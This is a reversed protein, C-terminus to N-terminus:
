NKERKRIRYIAVISLLGAFAISGAPTLAPVPRARTLPHYDGGYLIYGQSNYPLLTDGLGDGDLDTGEYDSWFNGGLYPGGIINKGPTKTINWINTGDDEANFLNNFYNNYIINNSSAFVYIGLEENNTVNNGTINSNSSNFMLIGVFFNNSINNGTLNSNSSNAIIVGIIYNNSANNGTLNNNDGGTFIFLFPFGLIIGGFYNNSANNIKLNNNSSNFLLIGAFFSGSANNGTINNYSSNELVIGGEFNNSVNNGAIINHDSNSLGIGVSNDSINNGTINNYLSPDLFIGNSYNVINMNKVTVGTRSPLYVGNGTGTGNSTHGNGDLTISDNDIQITETVDSTLTCTLSGSDWTGITTCDGGTSNIFKTSPRPQIFIVHMGSLDQTYTFNGKANTSVVEHNHYNDEYKHYVTNPAFGSLTIQTQTAGSSASQIRMTVMEPVSELVVRVPETSDLTFNIYRTNDLEFHTGTAELRGFSQFEKIGINMVQTKMNMEKATLPTGAAISMFSLLLLIIVTGLTVNGCVSKM